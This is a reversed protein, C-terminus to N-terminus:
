LSNKKFHQDKNLREVNTGIKSFGTYSRKFEVEKDKSIIFKLFKNTKHNASKAGSDPDKSPGDNLM